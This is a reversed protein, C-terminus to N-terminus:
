ASPMSSPTKLTAPLSTRPPMVSSVNTTAPSPLTRHPSVAFSFVCGFVSTTLCVTRRQRKDELQIQQPLFFRPSGVLFNRVHRKANCCLPWPNKLHHLAFTTAQNAATPKGTVRTTPSPKSAATRTSASVTPPLLLSCLQTLARWTCRKGKPFVCTM